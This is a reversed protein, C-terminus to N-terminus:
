QDSVGVDPGATWSKSDLPGFSQIDAIPVLATSAATLKMSVPLHLAVNASPFAKNSPFAGPFLIAGACLAIPSAIMAGVLLYLASIELTSRSKM